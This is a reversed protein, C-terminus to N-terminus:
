RGQDTIGHSSNGLSSRLIKSSSTICRLLSLFCGTQITRIPIELTPRYREGGSAVQYRDPSHLPPTPHAVPILPSLSPLLVGAETQARTM